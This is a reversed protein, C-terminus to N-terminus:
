AGDFAKQLAITDIKRMQMMAQMARGAKVRDPDNLLKSLLKPVIQWSVGFADKLWACMSEEGGETLKGWYYDVEAQNDCDVVLSVGENFAFLHQASSDMAMFVQNDLTFQAHKINGEIDPEGAEYRAIGTISTNKFM